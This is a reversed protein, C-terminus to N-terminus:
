ANDILRFGKGHINIIDLSSDEKLYKRLKTIFVDMSRANFY